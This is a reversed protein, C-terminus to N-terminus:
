KIREITFTQGPYIAESVDAMSALFAQLSSLGDIWECQQYGNTDTSKVKYQRQSLAVANADHMTQSFDSM